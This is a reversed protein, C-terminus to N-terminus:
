NTPNNLEQLYDMAKDILEENSSNYVMLDQVAWNNNYPLLDFKKQHIDFIVLSNRNSDITIILNGFRISNQLWETQGLESDKSPLNHFDISMREKGELLEVSGGATNTAMISNEDFRHSGHPSKMGDMLVRSVGSDKDLLRTSGEHFLTLFISNADRSDYRATNIFAARKATPLHDSKPDSVLMFAKGGSELEKAEEKKRTLFIPSNDVPNNAENLGHDWAFWDWKLQSDTFDYEHLCEFGSSTVLIRNEDEHHFDVTHIYSFWPNSIKYNKETKFIYVQNELSVAFRGPKYDIGRPESLEGVVKTEEIQGNAINLKAVGGLSIARREVSGAKGSVNAKSKIYRSRIAQLDFSKITVVLQIEDYFGSDREFSNLDIRSTM